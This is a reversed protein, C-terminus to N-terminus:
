HRSRSLRKLEFDRIRQRCHEITQRTMVSRQEDKLEGDLTEAIARATDVMLDFSQMSDADLPLTMFLSVGPTEFKEMADLDFTGPKVMNAMSFLLPGQGKPDSYRHFIDMDGYRMGCKLLIDLLAGGNFTEGKFAMINIILVEEPAKQPQNAAVSESAGDDDDYGEDENEDEYGDEEDDYDDHEDDYEDDLDQYDEDNDHEDIDDSENDAQRDIPHDDLGPSDYGQQDLEDSELDHGDLSNAQLKERAIREDRNLAEFEDLESDRYDSDFEENISPEPTARYRDTKGVLEQFSQGAARDDGRALNSKESGAVQTGSFTPEIRRGSQNSPSTSKHSKNATDKLLVDDTVSEMLLPVSEDLNLRTQEPTRGQDRRSKFPNSKKAARHNQASERKSIVRAGGNPLESTYIDKPADDKTDSKSKYISRSMRIKDRQAIRMRRVGDLLIGVILLVIIVTVWEQM